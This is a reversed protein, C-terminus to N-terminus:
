RAEPAFAAITTGHHGSFTRILQGTAFEWVRIAGAADVTLLKRGDASFECRIEQRTNPSEREGHGSLTYVERGDSVRWCTVVEAAPGGAPRRRRGIRRSGPPYQVLHRVAYATEGTDGGNGSTVSDSM